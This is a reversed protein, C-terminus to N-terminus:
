NCNKIKTAIPLIEAMNLYVLGLEQAVVLNNTVSFNRRKVDVLKTRKLDDNFAVFVTFPQMKKGPCDETRSRAVVTM